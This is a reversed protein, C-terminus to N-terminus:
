SELASLFDEASLLAADPGPGDWDFTAFFQEVPVQEDALGTVVVRRKPEAPQM